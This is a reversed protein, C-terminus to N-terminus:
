RTRAASTLDRPEDVITNFLVQTNYVQKHDTLM